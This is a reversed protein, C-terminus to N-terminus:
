LNSIELFFVLTPIKYQQTSSFLFCQKFKFRKLQLIIKKYVSLSLSLSLSLLCQFRNTAQDSWIELKLWASCNPILKQVQMFQYLFETLIVALSFEV